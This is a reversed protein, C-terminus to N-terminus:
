DYYDDGERMKEIIMKAEHNLIESAWDRRCNRMLREIVYDPLVCDDVDVDVIDVEADCGPYLYGPREAPLYDYYITVDLEGFSGAYVTTKYTRM